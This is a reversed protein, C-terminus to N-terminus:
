NEQQRKKCVSNNVPSGMCEADFSISNFYMISLPRNHVAIQELIVRPLLPDPEQLLKRYCYSATIRQCYVTVDSLSKKKNFNYWILTYQM